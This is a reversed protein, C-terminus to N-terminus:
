SLEAISLTYDARVEAREGGPSPARLLGEILLLKPRTRTQQEREREQPTLAPRRWRKVKVASFCYAGM